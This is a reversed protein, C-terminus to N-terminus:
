EEVFHAGTLSEIEKILKQKKRELKYSEQKLEKNKAKKREVEAELREAKAKKCEIEAKLREIEAEATRFENVTYVSIFDGDVVGCSALTKNEESAVTAANSPLYLYHGRSHGKKTLVVGGDDGDFGLLAMSLDSLDSLMTSSPISIADTKSTPPHFLTINIDSM